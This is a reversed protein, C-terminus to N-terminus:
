KILDLNAYVVDELGLNLSMKAVFDFSIFLVVLILKGLFNSFAEM